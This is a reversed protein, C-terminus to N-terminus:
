GAHNPCPCDNPFLRCPPFRQLRTHSRQPFGFLESRLQLFNSKSFRLRAVRDDIRLREHAHQPLMLGPRHHLGAFVAQRMRLNQEAGALHREIASRPESGAFHDRSLLDTSVRLQHRLINRTEAGKEPVRAPPPHTSPMGPKATCREPPAANAALRRAPPCRDM